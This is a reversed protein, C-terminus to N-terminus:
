RAGGNKLVKLIANEQRSAAALITDREAELKGITAAQDDLLRDRTAIETKLTAITDLLPQRADHILIKIFAPIGAEHEALKKAKADHVLDMFLADNAADDVAKTTEASQRAASSDWRAAEAAENALRTAENLRALRAAVTEEVTVPADDGWSEVVKPITISITKSAAAELADIRDNTAKIALKAPLDYDGRTEAELADLRSVLDDIGSLHMFARSGNKSGYGLLMGFHDLEVDHKCLQARITKIVAELDTKKENEM